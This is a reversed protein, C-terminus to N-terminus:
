AKVVQKFIPYLHPKDIACIIDKFKGRYRNIVTNLIDAIHWAPIWADDVGKDDLIITDFGFFLAMNFCNTLQEVFKDPHMLKTQPALLKKQADVQTIDKDFVVNLAPRFKAHCNLVSIVTWEAIPLKPYKPQKHDRFIMVEPSLLVQSGSMSGAHVANNISLSYTSAYYLPTENSEIGQDSRGGPTMQSGSVIYLCTVKNKRLVKVVSLPDNNMVSIRTDYTNFTWRPPITELPIYDKVDDNCITKIPAKSHLTVVSADIFWVKQLVSTEKDDDIMKACSKETNRWVNLMEVTRAFVADPKKKPLKGLEEIIENTIIETGADHFIEDEVTAQTDPQENVTVFSKSIFDSLVALGDAKKFTISTAKNQSRTFEINQKVVQKSTISQSQSKENLMKELITDNALVISSVSLGAKKRRANLKKILDPPLILNGDKDRPFDKITRGARPEDVPEDAVPNLIANRIDDYLNQIEETRQKDDLTKNRILYEMYFQIMTIKNTYKEGTNKDERVKTEAKYADYFGELFKDKTMDKETLKSFFLTLFKESPSITTM